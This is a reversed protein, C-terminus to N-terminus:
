KSRGRFPSSCAASRGGVFIAYLDGKGLIVETVAPIWFDLNHALLKIPDDHSFAALGSGSNLHPWVTWAWARGLRAEFDAPSVSRRGHGRNRVALARGSYPLGFRDLTTAPLLYLLPSGIPSRM